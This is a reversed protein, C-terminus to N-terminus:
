RVHATLAQQYASVVRQSSGPAGKGLDLFRATSDSFRVVGKDLVVVRDYTADIDDTQHTSIILDVDGRLELAMAQFEARQAPDLGATPEDMLVWRADHVLTQAVGVRRLEGGSLTRPRREGLHGLDMRELAVLSRDWADDRSLGKLWGVYAVQERVTLGPIPKIQQPMFSIRRRFSRLTSGCARVQGAAITGSAPRLTSACLGLLTSKGAGNPGLLLTSGSAFEFDFSQFVPRSKRYAFYVDELALGRM